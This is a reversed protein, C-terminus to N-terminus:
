LTELASWMAQESDFIALFGTKHCFILGPIDRTHEHWHAPLRQKTEFTGMRPPIALVRWQGNKESIIYKSPHMAGGNEFYTEKWNLDPSSFRIVVEDAEMADLVEDRDKEIAKWAEIMGELFPITMNVAREFAADQESDQAPNLYHIMDSFTPVGEHFQGLGLDMADVHDILHKRLYEACRHPMRGESELWDCIMGASSRHGHYSAQHHDFRRSAPDFVGGVDVVFDAKAVLAMDRTRVVQMDPLIHSRLLAVAIVDDAHFQGNHTAILM